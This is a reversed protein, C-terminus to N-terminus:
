GRTRWNHIKTWRIAGDLNQEFRAWFAAIANIWQQWDRWVKSRSRCLQDIEVRQDENGWSWRDCYNGLSTEYVFECEWRFIWAHGQCGKQIWLKWVGGRGAQAMEKSNFLLANAAEQGKFTLFPYGYGGCVKDSIIRHVSTLLSQVKTEYSLHKHTQDCSKWGYFFPLNPQSKM